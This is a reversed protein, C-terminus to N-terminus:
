DQELAHRWDKGLAKEGRDILHELLNMVYFWTELKIEDEKDLEPRSIM